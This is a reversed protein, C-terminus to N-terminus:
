KIKNKENEKKREGKLEVVPWDYGGTTSSCNRCGMSEEFFCTYAWKHM